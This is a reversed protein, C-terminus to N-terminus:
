SLSIGVSSRKERSRNRRNENQQSGIGMEDVHVRSGMKYVGMKDVGSEM